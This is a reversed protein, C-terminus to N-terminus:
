RGKLFEMVAAILAPIMFLLGPSAFLAALAWHWGWIYYACLFCGYVIPLTFRLFLALGIALIGWINGHVEEIGAWGAGLQFIGYCLFLIISLGIFIDKM